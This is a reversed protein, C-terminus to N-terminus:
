FEYNFSISIRPRSGRHPPVEHRMWSEFLIIDGPKSQITIYNQERAPASALRPPAAMLFGMRPDEIKFPSSGKPMNVYYVGSIVSLPHTHLTHHTGQGMANAWCTTMTLPQGRLDLKLAKVFRRVHPRLLKELEGFNPSTLHLQDLSSYSSYGNHYHARSWRRGDGDLTELAAIEKIFDRNLVRAQRTNLTGRYIYSPFVMEIRSSM